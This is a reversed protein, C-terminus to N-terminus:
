KLNYYYKVPNTNKKQINLRIFVAKILMFYKGREPPNTFWQAEVSMSGQNHKQMVQGCVLLGGCDEKVLKELKSLMSLM